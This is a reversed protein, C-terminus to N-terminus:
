HPATRRRKAAPVDALGSMGIMRIVFDAANRAAQQQHEKTKDAAWDCISKIVIWDAGAKSAAAYFGTGEMEGGLADPNEAVIRARETASDLLTNCTLMIGFHATPGTQAAQVAYCRNLLTVSPEPRAGRPIEAVRRTGKVDVIKKADLVRLQTSILIDGIRQQKERLGYCIGTLILYDPDLRDILRQVTLTSGGTAVFGPECRALLMDAGGLHGLDFVVHEDHFRPRHARGTAEAAAALMEQQEIPTAVVLLVTTRAHVMANGREFVLRARRRSELYRHAAVFSIVVGTLALLSTLWGIIVIPPTAPSLGPPDNLLLRQALWRVASWYDAPRGACAAACAQREHDAVIRAELLVIVAVAAWYVLFMLLGNDRSEGDDAPRPASLLFVLGAGEQDLHAHRAESRFAERLTDDTMGALRCVLTSEAPRLRRFHRGVLGVLDAPGAPGTGPAPPEQHCLAVSWHRDVLDDRVTRHDRGREFASRVLLCGGRVVAATLMTTLYLTALVTLGLAAAYAVDAHGLLAVPPAAALLAVPPGFAVFVDWRRDLRRAPGGRSGQPPRTGIPPELLAFATPGAWVLRGERAAVYLMLALPGRTRVFAFFGRPRVTTLASRARPAARVARAAARAEAFTIGPRAGPAM